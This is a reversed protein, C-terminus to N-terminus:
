RDLRGLGGCDRCNGSGGCETCIHRIDSGGKGKCDKCLGDGSCTKCIKPTLKNSLMVKVDRLQLRNQGSNVPM